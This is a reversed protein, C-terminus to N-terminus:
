CIARRATQWWCHCRSRRPSSFTRRNRASASAGPTPPTALAHKLPLGMEAVPAELNRAIDVALAKLPSVYLTHIGKRDHPDKLDVLSPLFGALTKGGGTPSILLASRGEFGHELMALQHARPRWGRAVFWQEFQGPLLSM